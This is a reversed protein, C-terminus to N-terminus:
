LVFDCFSYVPVPSAHLLLLIFANKFLFSWWSLQHFSISVSATLQVPPSTEPLVLAQSDSASKLSHLFVCCYDSAAFFLHPLHPTWFSGTFTKSFSSPDSSTATPNEWCCILVIEMPPHGSASPSCGSLSELKWGPDEDWSRCSCKLQSMAWTTRTRRWGGWGLHHTKWM